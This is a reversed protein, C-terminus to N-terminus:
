KTTITDFINVKTVNDLQQLQERLKGTDSDRKSYIVVSAPEAGFLNVFATKDTSVNYYFVAAFVSAFTLATIIIFIMINQKLTADMSKIDRLLHLGGAPRELPTYVKRLSDTQIAVRLATSPQINRVRFAAGSTVPVVCCIILLICIVKIFLEL